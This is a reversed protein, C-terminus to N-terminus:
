GGWAGKGESLYVKYAELVNTWLDLLAMVDGGPAHGSELQLFGYCRHSYSGDNKCDYNIAGPQFNSERWAKNVVWQCDWAFQPQCLVGVAEDFSLATGASAPNGQLAASTTALTVALLAIQVGKM